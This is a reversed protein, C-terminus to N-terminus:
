AICLPNYVANLPRLAIKCILSIGAVENHLVKCEPACRVQLRREV